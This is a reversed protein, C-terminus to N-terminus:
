STQSVLASDSVNGTSRQAAIARAAHREAQYQAQDITPAWSGIPTWDADLLQWGDGERVVRYTECDTRRGFETHHWTLTGTQHTPEARRTRPGGLVLDAAAKRSM